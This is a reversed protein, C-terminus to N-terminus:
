AMSAPFELWELIEEPVEKEKLDVRVREFAAYHQSLM